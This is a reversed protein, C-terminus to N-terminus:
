RRKSACRRSRGTLRRESAFTRFSGDRASAWPAEQRRDSPDLTWSQPSFEPTIQQSAWRKRRVQDSIRWRVESASMKSLRRLRWELEVSKMISRHGVGKVPPCGATMAAAVHLKRCDVGAAVLTARTTVALSDLSIPMPEGARVAELFARIEASQGKDPPGLHRRVRARPGAWM